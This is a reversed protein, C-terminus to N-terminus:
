EQQIVAHLHEDLWHRLREQVAAPLQLVFRVFSLTEFIEFHGGAYAIIHTRRSRLQEFALAQRTKDAFRAGAQTNAFLHYLSYSLVVTLVYFVIESYRTSSLKKLQWGGSKMQEYDQEIEPREEYHRVIWPGKLRQDTTVLVIYDLAHKKRNWYRIVCANLPVQCEEWLHEIGQVFAIHQHARSPHPQWTDQLTALQVAEQYSLMNSKLPVIVDVHRQQKLFTLTKGDVFGRDELVLDGARLVPATEFLLRCLPLDHVQIPALGVQTILGAHDLLTRLTALKYGRSRSGDDNRVVGSCEYTGTELPVEVHTTDVIHIRRGPGVRAYTLLSPGVTDNYWEMLKAAVRQARAEAEAVDLDGKVARRSARQRVKVSQSPEFPPLRLPENLDVHKELKVLLKRLVDGSILKDDVTGRLSLGQEPELVELSYGLAGLVLASRLVYGSKRMSYLGAFRAAVHSALLVEMSIEPECRPDPFTAAWKSLLGSQLAFLLFEDTLEESATELHVLEGLEIAQRVADGNRAWLKITDM